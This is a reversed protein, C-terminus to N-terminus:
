AAKQEQSRLRDILSRIDEVRWAVIRESLKVQKPYRGSRIGAYWVSKSVGILGLVDPLRLFGTEGM